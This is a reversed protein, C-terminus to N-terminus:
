RMQVEISLIYVSAFKNDTCRFVIYNSPSGKFDPTTEM